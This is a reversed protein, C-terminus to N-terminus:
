PMRVFGNRRSRGRGRATEGPHSLRGDYVRSRRMRRSAPRRIPPCRDCAVFAGAALADDQGTIRALPLEGSLDGTGHADSGRVHQRALRRQAPQCGEDGDRPTDGAAIRCRVDRSPWPSAMPRGTRGSTERRTPVAPVGGTAGPATARDCPRDPPCSVRDPTARSRRRHPARHSALRMWAASPPEASVLEGVDAAFRSADPVGARYSGSRDLLGLRVDTAGGLEEVIRAVQGVRAHALKELPMRAIPRASEPASAPRVSAPRGHSCSM